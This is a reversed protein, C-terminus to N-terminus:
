SISKLENLAVAMANPALPQFLYPTLLSSSAGHRPDMGWALLAKIAAAKNSDSPSQKVVAYEFNVIPYGTKSSHSYILSLSGNSPIQTFSAVEDAISQSTPLIYQGKGNELEAYGLGGKLAGRLYSIGIYAVCGPTQICLKQMGANGQASLAGSVNPWATFGTNPGGATAVFSTGSTPNAASGGLGFDLFSTFLFTDGSSDSRHLPVVALSPLKVGPNIKKIQPANWNTISGNYMGQLVTASLHLHVKIGPVNYNVAQASVVEPINIVGGPAGPPLYADSAGIDVTGSEAQSQGTGSGTSQATIKASTYASSWNQFLPFFLSSGTEQLSTGSPGASEISSLSKELTSLSPVSTKKPTTAAFSSSAIGLSVVGALGLASLQRLRITRGPTASGRLSRNM